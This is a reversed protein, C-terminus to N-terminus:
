GCERTAERLTQKSGRVALGIFGHILRDAGNDFALHVIPPYHHSSSRPRVKKRMQALEVWAQIEKSALFDRVKDGKAYYARAAAVQPSVVGVGNSHDSQGSDSCAGDSDM